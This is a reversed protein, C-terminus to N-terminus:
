RDAAHWLSHPAVNGLREERAVRITADTQNHCQHLRCFTSWPSIFGMDVDHSILHVLPRSHQDLCAAGYYRRLGIFRGLQTRLAESVSDGIGDGGAARFTNEPLCPAQGYAALLGRLADESFQMRFPTVDFNSHGSVKGAERPDHGLCRVSRTLVPAFSLTIAPCLLNHPFSGDIQTNHFAAPNTCAEAASSAAAAKTQCCPVPVDFSLM